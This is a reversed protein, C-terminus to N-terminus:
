CLETLSVIVIGTRQASRSLRNGPAHRWRAILPPEPDVTAPKSLAGKRCLTLWIMLACLLTVVALGSFLLTYASDYSERLVRLSFDPLACGGAAYQRGGALRRRPSDGRPCVRSRSEAPDPYQKGNIGRLRGGLAIGEGAVRVTNFLGAAMGAKAVPVASIAPGDM